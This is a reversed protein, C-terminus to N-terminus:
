YTKVIGFNISFALSNKSDEIFAGIKEALQNLKKDMAKNPTQMKLRQM